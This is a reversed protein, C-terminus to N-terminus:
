ENPLNHSRIRTGELVFDDPQIVKGIPSMAATASTKGPGFPLVYPQLTTYKTKPEVQVSQKNFLNEVFSTNQNM